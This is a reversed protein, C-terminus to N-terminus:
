FKLFLGVLDKQTSATDKVTSTRAPHHQLTICQRNGKVHGRTIASSCTRGPGWPLEQALVVLSVAKKKVRPEQTLENKFETISPTNQQSQMCWFSKEAKEEEQLREGKGWASYKAPNVQLFCSCCGDGPNQSTGAKTRRTGTGTFSGPFQQGKLSLFCSCPEHLMKTHNRYWCFGKAKKRNRCPCCTPRTTM